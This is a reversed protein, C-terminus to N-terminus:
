CSAEDPLTSSGWTRAFCELTLTRWFVEWGIALDEGSKMGRSVAALCRDAEPRFRDIDVLGLSSLASLSSLDRMTALGDGALAAQAVAPEFRSKDARTRVSEPLVGKMALRYLGRHQHDHSLLLPDIRSLFRVLAPDYYVDFLGRGGSSAIQGLCDAYDAARPGRCYAALLEDPSAPVSDFDATDRARFAMETADRSLWLTGARRVRRAIRRAARPLRTRLAPMLALGSVRQRVTSEWPVRMRAAALSARVFHGRSALLAPGHLPDLMVDGQGGHLIVDLGRAAAARAFQPEFCFTSVYAPQADVCFGKAFFPAAEAPDFRVPEIGLSRSLERMHPRDDGPAAFDLTLAEVDPGGTRRSTALTLALLGSSDLGGSVEVGIRRAGASAREVAEEIADRLKRSVAVPDGKLYAGGVEPVVVAVDIERGGKAGVTLRECPRVRRLDEFPTASRDEEHSWLLTAVLRSLRLRRVPLARALPELRSCIAFVGSRDPGYYYLPQQPFAGVTAVVGSSTVTVDPGSGEVPDDIPTGRYSWARWGDGAPVMQDSESVGVLWTDGGATKRAHGELWRQFTTWVPGRERSERPRWAAFLM